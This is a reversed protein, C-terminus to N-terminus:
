EQVRLFQCEVKEAATADGETNGVFLIKKGLPVCLKRAAIRLQETRELSDERTVISNFSLSSSKTIEQVLSKGQMTVLAKPKDTFKLYIAIGEKKTTGRKWALNEKEDWVQFIRKKTEKDLNSITKTIPQIDKTKLIKSFENFLQEYDIPLDILTGDLDFIVAEIM